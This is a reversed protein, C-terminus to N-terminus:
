FPLTISACSGDNLLIFESIRPTESKKGNERGSNVVDGVIHQQMTTPDPHFVAESISGPGQEGADVAVVAQDPATTTETFTGM